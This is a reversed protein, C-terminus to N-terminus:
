EPCKNAAQHFYRLIINLFCLWVVLGLEVSIIFTITFLQLFYNPSMETMQNIRSYVLICFNENANECTELTKLQFPDSFPGRGVTHAAVKCQYTFYPHLSGLRLDDRLATFTWRQGTEIERLDVEYYLIIGNIDLPPPPLWTFFLVTTSRAVGSVSQPPSSPAALHFLLLKVEASTSVVASFKGSQLTRLTVPQTANGLGFVNRAEVTCTYATYEELTQPFTYTTTNADISVYIDSVNAFQEQSAIVQYSSVATLSNRFTVM